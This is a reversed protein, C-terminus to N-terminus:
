YYFTYSCANGNTGLYFARGDGPLNFIGGYYCGPNPPPVIQLYDNAGQNGSPWFGVSGYEPAHYSYSM